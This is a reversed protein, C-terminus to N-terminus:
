AAEQQRRQQERYAALVSRVYRAAWADFDLPETSRNVVVTVPTKTETM